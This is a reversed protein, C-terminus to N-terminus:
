DRMRVSGILDPETKHVTDTLEKPKIKTLPLISFSSTDSISASKRVARQEKEQQYFIRWGKWVEDQVGSFATSLPDHGFLISGNRM